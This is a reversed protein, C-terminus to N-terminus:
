ERGAQGSGYRYVGSEAYTAYHVVSVPTDEEENTDDM